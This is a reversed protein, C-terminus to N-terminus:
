GEAATKIRELTQRMGARLAATFAEQGGLFADTLNLSLESIGDPTERRQTLRTGGGSAELVFSWIVRNENIRFALEREATFRVIQGHTKWELDGQRNLNTFQAASEVRDFGQRLRTSVVTPSWEPMRCVDSVLTWVRAPPADIEVSHALLPEYARNPTSTM